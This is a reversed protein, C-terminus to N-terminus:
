GGIQATTKLSFSGASYYTQPEYAMIKHIIVAGDRPLRDFTVTRIYEGPRVIGSQALIQGDEDLIRLQMWTDNQAHNTFYVDAAGDAIIVEGCVSVKMPLGEAQPTFWGLADPVEPLGVEANEAFPPPTFEGRVAPRPLLLATIMFIVCVACFVAACVLPSAACLKKQKQKTM